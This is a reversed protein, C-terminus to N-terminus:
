FDWDLVQHPPKLWHKHHKTDYIDWEEGIYTESDVDLLLWTLFLAVTEVSLLRGHDKLRQYFAVRVADINLASRAVEQMHTDIIGPMVSAFSVSDSELQWSRTLM